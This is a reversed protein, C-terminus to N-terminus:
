EQRREIKTLQTGGSTLHNQISFLIAKATANDTRVFDKKACIKVKTLNDSIRRLKIKIAPGHVSAAEIEEEGRKQKKLRAQLSLEKLADVTANWVKNYEVPFSHECCRNQMYYVAGGGTTTGLMFPFCGSVTLLFLISFALEPRLLYNRKIRNQM